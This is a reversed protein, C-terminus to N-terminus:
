LEMGKTCPGEAGAPLQPNASSHLHRQVLLACNRAAVAAMEMASAANEWASVYVLGQAPIRNPIPDTCPHPCRETPQKCAVGARKAAPGCAARAWASVYVGTVARPPPAHPCREAPQNCAVGACEANPGSEWASVLGQAPPRHMHAAGQQSNARLVLSSQKQGVPLGLEHVHAHM